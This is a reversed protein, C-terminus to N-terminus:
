AYRSKAMMNKPKPKAMKPMNPMGLKNIKKAKHATPKKLM